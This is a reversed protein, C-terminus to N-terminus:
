GSGDYASCGATGDKGETAPVFSRFLLCQHGAGSGVDVMMVRDSGLDDSPLTFDDVPVSGDMWTPADARHEAMWAFTSVAVEPNKHLWGM